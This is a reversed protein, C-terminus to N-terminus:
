RHRLGGQLSQDRLDDLLGADGEVAFRGFTKLDHAHQFRAVEVEVVHQQEGAVLAVHRFADVVRRENGMTQAMSVFQRGYFVLDGDVSIIEM